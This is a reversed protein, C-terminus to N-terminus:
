APTVRFGLGSQWHNCFDDPTACPMSMSWEKGHRDLMTGAIVVARGELFARRAERVAELDAVSTASRVAVVFRAWKAVDTVPALRDIEFTGRRLGSGIFWCTEAVVVGAGDAYVKEVTMSPSMTGRLEVVVDGPAVHFPRLEVQQSAPPPPAAPTSVPPPPPEHAVHRVLSVKGIPGILLRANPQEISLALAHLASPDGESLATCIAAVDKEREADIPVAYRTFTRRVANAVKAAAAVRADPASVPTREALWAEVPDLHGVAVNFEIVTSDYARSTHLTRGDELETVRSVVPLDPFRQRLDDLIVDVHRVIKSDPASPVVDRGGRAQFAAEENAIERALYWAAKALDKRRAEGPKRGARALYKVANGLNFGLGWAEIVKIAEYPDDAGGYHAPHDVADDLDHVEVVVDGPWVHPTGDPSETYVSDGEGGVVVEAGQPTAVRAGEALRRNQAENEARHVECPDDIFADCTCTPAAGVQRPHQAPRLFMGRVALRVHGVLTRLYAAEGADEVQVEVQTFLAPRLGEAFLQQFREVTSVREGGRAGPARMMVPWGKRLLDHFFGVVDEAGQWPAPQEPRRARMHPPAIRVDLRLRSHEKLADLSFYGLAGCVGQAYGLWRMAKASSGGEPFRQRMGRLEPIVESYGALMTLAEERTMSGSSPVGLRTASATMDVRYKEPQQDWAGAAYGWARLEDHLVEGPGKEPMAEDNVTTM